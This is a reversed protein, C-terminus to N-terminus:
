IIGKTLCTDVIFPESVRGLTMVKENKYVILGANKLNLLIIRVEEMPYASIRLLKEIDLNKHQIFLALITLWDPQLDMLIKYDPNQPKKIIITDEESDMINSKWTNLAVGPIGKTANFYSNFLLSLSLQSVSEENSDKYNFTIGSSYHRGLILQQLEKANFPECDIISLCNDEFPLLKKIINFSHSNCNLIFLVKSGYIQILEIIKNLVEDGGSRREWWLEMDNFVVTTEYTMNNFINLLDEQINVQDQIRRTFVEVDTAGAIPPDIWITNKKDIYHDVAYRTIATKGAGHVGKILIAGGFGRKHRQLGDNILGIEIDRAVWFEENINADSNMLKRYFAPVKDYAKQNPLAKEILELVQSSQTYSKEKTNLYKRLVGSSSSNILYVILNYFSEKSSNIANTIRISIKRGTHQRQGSSIKSESDSISHYFLKSFADQLHIISFHDMRQLAVKVKERISSLQRHLKAYLEQDSVLNMEDILNQNKQNNLQFVLLSYAEKTDTISSKINKELQQLERYYPEYFLTDLYYNSSKKLNVRIANYDSFRLNGDAMFIDQPIELDESFHDLLEMIRKWSDSIINQVEIKDPLQITKIEIEPDKIVQDTIKILEDLPNLLKEEITNSIQKNGTKVINKAENKTALLYADLHMTNNLLLIGDGFYEAFFNLYEDHNEIKVKIKKKAERINLVDAMDSAMRISLDRFAQLLSAKSFEKIRALDRELESFVKIQEDFEKLALTYNDAKAMELKEYSDNIGFLLERLRVMQDAISEELLDLQQKLAPKVLANFYYTIFKKYTFNVEREKNAKNLYSITVSDPAQDIYNDTHSLLESISQKLDNKLEQLLGDHRYKIQSVIKQLFFQHNQSITESSHHAGNEGLKKVLYDRNQSVFDKLELHLSQFSRIVKNISKDIFANGINMCDADLAEIRNAVIKNELIPLPTLEVMEVEVIEQKTHSLINEFLSIEEFENSPSLLLLSSPLNALRNIYSIYETTYSRKNQSIGIMLLDSGMSESNIIEERTRSGFDDNVVTVEAKIRKDSIIAKTNRIISDHMATQGNIILIRVQVDRWSPDSSLFRLINLAFSLFRGQGDWWIDIKQKKGFGNKKDYDLFVVNLNKSKLDNLIDALFNANQVERSWAMLVTNPEFGSFGYVSSVTKIGNAFSDSHFERTFYNQKKEQLIPASIINTESESKPSTILNYDTLAGLQGTLSLGMEILHPRTKDSENFLLVNPRWNRKNGKELTLNLLSKKALNTWFSSWADGSELILSKRRLYLYLLGLVIVAGALAVFDLLIMVIFASLAGLISVFKPIKFAPRYDSSSWSEIAAAMNLFAYTTIFFMSVIRAIVDLDGILIGAEAIVFSLLLANRPENTKGTGKAFFKSVIKDQAIAQLIRPAGLISGLASSLTAGWIGAIVLTPSLSIKFLIEPDNALANADVTLAYFLALGIYVLFGVGVALMAGYPLSKKPDKLDGSMSVGAEFGTVAPFFIGFLVMFPAATALPAYNIESPVFDHHGFGFFISILSLVIAAMIFYQSKIALSTSIFTITTVALLVLSGTIRITQINNELNWYQLFSEAFGILYLSVSFSLGVFLALGLTGGIPLGLSRSIMFYTGGNQVPKDTSLSAVSLGTTFSIIHAIVIIGITNILGSQGIIAPFRLYMIVGLITLISPTFVGSFTGFKKAKAM